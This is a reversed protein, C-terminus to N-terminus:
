NQQLYNERQGTSHVDHEAAKAAMGREAETVLLEPSMIHLKSMNPPAQPSQEGTIATRQFVHSCSPGQVFSGMWLLLEVM